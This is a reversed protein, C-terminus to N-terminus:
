FLNITKDLTKECGKKDRKTKKWGTTKPGHDPGHIDVIDPM